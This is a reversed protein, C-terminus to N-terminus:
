IARHTHRPTSRCAAPAVHTRAAGHYRQQWDAYSEILRVVEGLAQRAESSFTHAVGHPRQGHQTSNTHTLRGNM